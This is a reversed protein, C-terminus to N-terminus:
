LNVNQMVGTVVRFIRSEQIDGEASYEPLGEEVSEKKKLM